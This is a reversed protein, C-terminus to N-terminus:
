LEMLPDPHRASAEVVGLPLPSFVVMTAGRGIEDLALLMVDADIRPAFLRHLHRWLAARDHQLGSAIIAAVVAALFERDVPGGFRDATSM